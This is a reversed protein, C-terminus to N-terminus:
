AARLTCLPDQCQGAQAVCQTTTELRATRRAACTTPAEIPRGMAQLVKVMEQMRAALGLIQRPSAAASGCNNTRANHQRPKHGGVVSVWDDGPNDDPPFMKQVSMAQVAATRSLARVCCASIERVLKFLKLRLWKFPLALLVRM